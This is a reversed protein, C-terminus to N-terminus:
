IEGTHKYKTHRLKTMVKFNSLFYVALSLFFLSSKEIKMCGRVGSCLSCTCFCKRLFVYANYITKICNKTKQNNNESFSIIQM